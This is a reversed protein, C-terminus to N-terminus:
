RGINSGSTVSVSLFLCCALVLPVGSLAFLPSRGRAFAFVLRLAALFCSTPFAGSPLRGALFGLASLERKGVENGEGGAQQDIARRVAGIPNMLDLQVAPANLDADLVSCGREACAVAVVVAMGKWLQRTYGAAEFVADDIALDARDPLVADGVEGVKLCGHFPALGGPRTKKANSRRNRPSWSRRKFGSTTRLFCSSSRSASFLSWFIIWSASCKSTAPWSTRFAAQLRFSSPM